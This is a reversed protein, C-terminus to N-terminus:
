TTGGQYFSKLVTVRREYGYVTGGAGGLAMTMDIHHSGKTAIKVSHVSYNGRSYHEVYTDTLPVDDINLRHVVATATANYCHCHAFILLLMTSECEVNLTLIDTWSGSTWSVTTASMTELKEPCWNYSYGTFDQFTPVQDGFNVQVGDIYADGTCYPPSAAWWQFTLRIYATNAPFETSPTYTHSIQTWGFDTASTEYWSTWSLLTKASNYFWVVAQFAGATRNWITIWASLTVKDMGRIDVYNSYGSLKNNGVAYLAISYNGFKAQLSTSPIWGEDGGWTGYEFGGNVVYNYASTTLKYPPLDLKAIPFSGLASGNTVQTWSTLVSLIQGVTLAGFTSIINTWNAITTVVDTATKTVQTWALNGLSSILTTWNTLTTTIQAVTMAGVQSLINAWTSISAMINAATKTIQSWAINGWISVMNTWSVLTDMVNQATKTIYTWAINGMHACFDAWTEAAMRAWDLQPIWDRAITESYAPM